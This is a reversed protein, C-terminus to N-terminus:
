KCIISHHEKIAQPMKDPSPYQRYAQEMYKKAEDNRGQKYLIWAYTDLFSPNNPEAKVTTRSMQEAKDLQQGQEALRYAYNNLMWMDDPRRKLYSDYTAFAEQYNKQAYLCETLLAYCEPELYGKSFGSMEARRLLKVAAGLDGRDNALHALLYYPLTHTPFLKNARQAHHQLSDRLTSDHKEFVLTHLSVLLGEWIKYDTSDKRLATTYQAIADNYRGHGMLIHGYIAAYESPDDCQAVAIDMLAGTQEAYTEFFEKETYFNALISMKENCPLASNGFGTRLEQYAKEEQGITKYYNALSIHIYPDDPDAKLIRDYYQKARSYDKQKMCSEALMANYKKENPMAAALTELEKLAKDHKDLADWIQQKRLSVPETVGVIREVRNLVEVAKPLNDASIYADSLMYYNDLNYPEQKILTELVAAQRKYDGCQEYLGALNHQYWKNDAAIAVARQAYVIASDTMHSHGMLRSLEYNAVACKPEKALVKRFLAIAKQDNGLEQQMTADVIMVEIDLTQPSVGAADQQAAGKSATRGTGCAAFLVAITVTLAATTIRHQKSM